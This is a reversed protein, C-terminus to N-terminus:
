SKDAANIDHKDFIRLVDRKLLREVKGKLIPPASTAIRIQIGSSDIDQVGKYSPAPIEEPYNGKLLPLENKLIEEISELDAFESGIYVDCKVEEFSNQINVVGTMDSNNIVKIQGSAEVKTARIGISKVWFWEGNILLLDGVKFSGEFFIFIGAIIDKIMDQAGFSLGLGAIGISALATKADVGFNMAMQYMCCIVGLYKIINAILRSITEGSQKSVTAIRILIAEMWKIVSYYIMVTLINCVVSFINVNREWDGNFIYGITDNKGIGNLIMWQSIIFYASLCYIYIDVVKKMKDGADMDAWKKIEDNKNAKNKDKETSKFKYKSGLGDYAFLITAIIFMITSLLANCVVDVPFANYQKVLLTYGADSSKVLAAYSKNNYEYKGSYGDYIMDQSIGISSINKGVFQSDYFILITGEEDVCFQVLGSSDRLLGKPELRDINEKVAEIALIGEAVKNEDRRPVAFISIDGDQIKEDADVKLAEKGMLVYRLDYLSSKKDSLVDLHDLPSSTCVTKGKADFISVNSVNFLRALYELGDKTIYDPHRKIFTDILRGYIYYKGDTMDDILVTDEYYDDFLKATKGVHLNMDTEVNTMYDLESVLMFSGALFISVIIGVVAYKKLQIKLFNKGWFHIEETADIEDERLFIILAIMITVAIVLLIAISILQDKVMNFISSISTLAVVNESSGDIPYTTIYYLKKDIKGWKSDERSVVLKKGELEENWCYILEGTTKDVAGVDSYEGVRTNELTTEWFYKADVVSGDELESLIYVWYGEKVKIFLANDDYNNLSAVNIEDASNLDVDAFISDYYSDNFYSESISYDKCGFISKVTRKSDLVIIDEIGLDMFYDNLVTENINSENAYILEACKNLVDLRLKELINARNEYFLLNAQVNERIHKKQANNDKFTNYAIRSMMSGYFLVLIVAIYLLAATIIIRYKKLFKIM